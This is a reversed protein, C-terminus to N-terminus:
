NKICIAADNELGSSLLEHIIIQVRGDFFGPFPEFCTTDRDSGDEDDVVLDDAPAVVLSDLIATGHKM